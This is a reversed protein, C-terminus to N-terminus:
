AEAPPLAAVAACIADCHEKEHDCISALIYEALTGNWGAWPHQRQLTEEGLSRLYNVLQARTNELTFIQEAPTLHEREAVARENFGDEDNDESITTFIAPRQGTALREPLTELVVQEWAVLHALVNKVSWDGVVGKQNLQEDTCSKLTDLLLQQERGLADFLENGTPM